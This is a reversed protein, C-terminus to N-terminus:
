RDRKPEVMARAMRGITIGALASVVIEGATENLAFIAFIAGIVAANV